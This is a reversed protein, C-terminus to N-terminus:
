KMEVVLKNKVTKTRQKNKYRKNHRKKKQSKNYTISGGASNSNNNLHKIVYGPGYETTTDHMMNKTEPNHKTIHEFKLDPETTSVYTSMDGIFKILETFDTNIVTLDAM